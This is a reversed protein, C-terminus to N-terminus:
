SEVEYATKLVGKTTNVVVEMTLFREELRIVAAKGEWGKDPHIDTVDGESIAKSVVDDEVMTRDKVRKKYHRSKSYDSPDRSVQFTQELKAM